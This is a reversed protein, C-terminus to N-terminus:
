EIVEDARQLLSQPITLGLAKATNLSIVLEFQTAQQVPLDSPKVAQLIIKVVYTGLRRFMDDANAGYSMLGGADVYGRLEYVTALRNMVALEALRHRHGFFFSEPLVIIASVREKAMRAFAGEFESPDAAQVTIAALGGARVARETETLALSASPGAFVAVRSASPLLQKLLEVRKGLLEKSVHTIGTVNGGPRSLTTVLGSGVPDSVNYFLVPLTSTSHKAALAAPTGGAMILDVRMAVPDDVSAQLQDPRGLPRVEFMVDQGVVLGAERREQFFL